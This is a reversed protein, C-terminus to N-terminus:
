TREKNGSSAKGTLIGKGESMALISKIFINLKETMKLGGDVAFIYM